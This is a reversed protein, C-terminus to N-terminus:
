TGVATATVGFRTDYEALDRRIATPPAVQRGVPTPIDARTRAPPVDRFQEPHLVHQGSSANVPHTTVLQGQSWISLVHNRVGVQVVRRTLQAAAPLGYLVGDFAVFGDSTVRRDELRYREWAFGTPLPRLPEEVWRDLPRTHTTAHVRQNRQDCWNRAQRNLDDLDTFRVGPWFSTKIIGISREVKGKTQPTYARCVRATVGIATLFDAFQPNWQPTTGDMQLLVHKMRDTLVAAPLGELYEFALMLSRILSPTDCRKTFVIFRMRSYSLVVTCGFLKRIQGDVEYLFEGWDFQAQEAPATEYRRVPPQGRRPPRLPQVFDKLISIAGTYGQARLRDLMTVCNLLRDETVWARIQDHFPDLKTGRCPRPAASPTGRLYKRVTNRAIGTEEAIARISKGQASLDRITHVSKSRLM